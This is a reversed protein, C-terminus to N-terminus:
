GEHGHVRFVFAVVGEVGWVPALEVNKGGAKGHQGDNRANEGKHRDAPLLRKEDKRESNEVYGDIEHHLHASKSKWHCVRAGQNQLGDGDYVVNDM